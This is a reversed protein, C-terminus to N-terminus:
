YLFFNVTKKVIIYWRQGNFWLLCYAIAIAFVTFFITFYWEFQEATVFGDRLVLAM